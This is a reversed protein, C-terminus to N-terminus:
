ATILEPRIPQEAAALMEPSVDVGTLRHVNQVCHFYRGTGCGAELVSIARGFSASLDSLTKWVWCHHDTRAEIEDHQRYAGANQRYAAELEQRMRDYHRANTQEQM